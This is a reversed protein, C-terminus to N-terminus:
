YQDHASLRASPGPSALTSYGQEAAFRQWSNQVSLNGWAGRDWYEKTNSSGHTLVQLAPHGNGNAKCYRGAFTYTGERTRNPDTNYNNLLVQLYAIVADPASLDPAPSLDRITANVSATFNLQQCHPPAKAIVAGYCPLASVRLLLLNKLRM